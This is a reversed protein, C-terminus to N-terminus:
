FRRLTQRAGIRLMLLQNRLQLFIRPLGLLHVRFSVWDRASQPLTHLRHVQQWFARQRGYVAQDLTHLLQTWPPVPPAYAFAYPIDLRPAPLRDALQNPQHNRM